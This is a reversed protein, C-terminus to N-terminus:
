GKEAVVAGNSETKRGKVVAPDDGPFPERDHM